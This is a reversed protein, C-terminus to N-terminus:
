GDDGSPKTSRRRGYSRTAFIAWSAFFVVILVVAGLKPSLLLAVILTAVAAVLVARGVVPLEVAHRALPQSKMAESLKRDLKDTSLDRRLTRSMERKPRTSEAM